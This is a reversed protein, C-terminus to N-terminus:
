DEILKNASLLPPPPPRGKIKFFLEGKQILENALRLFAANLQLLTTIEHYQRSRGGHKFANLSSRRKGEETRPGTSKKWPKAQRIREAAKRRREDTWGKTM